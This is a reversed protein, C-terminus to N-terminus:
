GRAAIASIEFRAGRLLPGSGLFARAPFPGHFYTRYVANFADYLTLDPCYVQVSVLDDMDMGALALVAQVRDLALRAEQEVDAPPKGTAPDLGLTGAVYLTDGVLVGSSFPLGDSAGPLSLHEPGRDAPASACATVALCAVCALVALALRKM